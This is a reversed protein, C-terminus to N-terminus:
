SIQLMRAMEEVINLNASHSLIGLYPRVQVLDELKSVSRVGHSVSELLGLAELWNLYKNSLFDYIKDYTQPQERTAIHGADHLHDVWYICSYRLVDLPDQEPRKVKDIPFGPHRLSYIDRELTDGMNSLSRLFLTHHVSEIGSPFLERPAETTLFETASQHVFYVTGEHVALFSGCLRVARELLKKKQYANELAADFSALEKLTVPRYVATVIGLIKKCVDNHSEYIHQLMRQYLQDLGPPLARLEDIPGWDTDELYQCVLAVWLFTGNAKTLLHNQVILQTEEDYDKLRALEGVKCEIYKGVAASVSEANLELSLQGATRLEGEIRPWNRSSIIWKVRPGSRSKHMILRLLERWNKECEDLADVVLITDKLNIDHVVASFIDSLAAWSNADEFLQKGPRPAYREQVHSFLSPQQDVLQRILSRLVATANNIRSDSAQCFFFALLTSNDITAGLEDIIGCLLMTKGKGPDGRVWLLRGQQDERWQKFDPDKLIWSYVDRMLDGKTQQIRMKEYKPDSAWLDNLCQRDNENIM